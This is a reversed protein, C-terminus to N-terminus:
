GNTVGEILEKEKKQKIGLLRGVEANYLNSKEIVKGVLYEMTCGRAECVAQLFPTAVTGDVCWAKAEQEQKLWTASEAASVQATLEEIAKMYERDILMLKYPLGLKYSEDMPIDLKGVVYTEDEMCQLEYLEEACEVHRVPTGKRLITIM